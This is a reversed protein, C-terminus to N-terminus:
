AAGIIIWSGSSNYNWAAGSPPGVRRSHWDLRGRHFGRMRISPPASCYKTDTLCICGFGLSAARPGSSPTPTFDSYNQLTDLATQIIWSETIRFQEAWKQFATFLEAREPDSHLNEWSERLIESRAPRWRQSDTPPIDDTFIVIDVMPPRQGRRPRYKPFVDACLSALVQPWHLCIATFYAQRAAIPEKKPSRIGM